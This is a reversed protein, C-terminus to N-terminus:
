DKVLSNKVLSIDQQIQKKLEEVSSFKKEARIFRKFIVEINCGYLNIADSFLHIELVPQEKSQLTPAVGLNAIGQIFHGQYNVEVAYVGFPPLCLGELSLNATPFGLQKGQGIGRIVPGVISYPRNILRSVQDLDGEQLCQRIFTSSISQQEYYQEELYEICFCLTHAIEQMVERNGQRQYGITADHGLVLHSFPITKRLHHIFELPKMESLNSTFPLCVISDTGYAKLLNLRHRLTCLLDVSKPTQLVRSPHNSFTLVISKSRCNKLQNLRQLVAQHGRHVGDYNGITLVPPSDFYPLNELTEFIAM